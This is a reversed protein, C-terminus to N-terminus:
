LGCEERQEASLWQRAAIKLKGSIPQNPEVGALCRRLARYTIGTEAQVRNLREFRTLLRQAIRQHDISM